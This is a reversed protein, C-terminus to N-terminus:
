MDSPKVDLDLFYTFLEKYLEKSLTKKYPVVKNLFEKSTFNNFRILPICPELTNKLTNFDDKSYNFPDSPLEPNQALGWKLVYEWVQVDSISLNDNQILTILSKEPISVSDVSNFIKGPEKSILNTGFKQLDSFTDHEFSIRHIQNFNEELWNAKKEILFSQLHTVLEQLNLENAAVLINM